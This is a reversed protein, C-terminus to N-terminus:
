NAVWDNAPWSDPRRVQERLEKPVIGDALDRSIKGDGPAFLVQGEFVERELGPKLVLTGDAARVGAVKFAPPVGPSGVALMWVPGAAAAPFFPVPAGDRGRKMWGVCRVQRSLSAALVARNAQVRNIIPGMSPFDGLAEAIHRGAEVVKPHRPNMWPADTDLDRVKEVLALSEPISDAYLEALLHVLRKLVWARPIPELGPDGVVSQIGNLLYVDLEPADVAEAVFSYLFRGHSVMNDQPRPEMQVDYQRTSFGEPFAKSTHILVPVQDEAATHYVLGWYVVYEGHADTEKKSMLPKPHYLPRWETTGVPRYHAVLLRLSDDKTVALMPLRQRAAENLDLYAVCSKLDAEWVSGRV